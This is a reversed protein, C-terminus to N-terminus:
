DDWTATCRLETKGLMLAYRDGSPQVVHRRDAVQIPQSADNAGKGRLALAYAPLPAGELASSFAVVSNAGNTWVVVSQPSSEANAPSCQFMGAADVLHAPWGWSFGETVLDDQVVTHAHLPQPTVRQSAAKGPWTTVVTATMAALATAALSAAVLSRFLVPSRWSPSDQSLPPYTM